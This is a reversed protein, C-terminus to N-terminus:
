IYLFLGKREWIQFMITCPRLYAYSFSFLNDGKFIHAVGVTGEVCSNVANSLPMDIVHSVCLWASANVIQQEISLERSGSRLATPSHSSISVSGPLVCVTLM